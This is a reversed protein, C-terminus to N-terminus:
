SARSSRNDLRCLRRGSLAGGAGRCFSNSWLCRLLLLLLLLLYLLQAYCLGCCCWHSCQAPADAAVPVAVFGVFPASLTRSCSCMARLAAGAALQKKSLTGSPAPNCCFFQLAAACCSPNGAHFVARLAAIKALDFAAAAATGILVWGQSPSFGSCFFASIRAGPASKAM